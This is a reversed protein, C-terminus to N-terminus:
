KTGGAGEVALPAEADGRDHREAQPIIAYRIPGDESAESGVAESGRESAGARCRADGRERRVVEPVPADREQV